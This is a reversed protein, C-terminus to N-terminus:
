AKRTIDIGYLPKQRVPNMVKKKGLVIFYDQRLFLEINSVSISTELMKKVFDKGKGREASLFHQCTLPKTLGAGMVISDQCGQVLLSTIAYKAIDGKNSFLLFEVCM